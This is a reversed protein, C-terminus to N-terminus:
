ILNVRSLSFFIVVVQSTHKLTLIIKIFMKIEEHTYCMVCLFVRHSCVHILCATICQSISVCIVSLKQEVKPPKGTRNLKLLTM